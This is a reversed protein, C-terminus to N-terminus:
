KEEFTKLVELSTRLNCTLNINKDLGLGVELDEELGVNLSESFMAILFIM